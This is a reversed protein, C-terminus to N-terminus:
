EPMAESPRCSGIKHYPGTAEPKDATIHDVIDKVVPDPAKGDPMCDQCYWYGTGKPGVRFLPKESVHAGCKACKM